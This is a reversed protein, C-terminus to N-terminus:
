PGVRALLARPGVRYVHGIAVGSDAITSAKGLQLIWEAKSPADVATRPLLSTFAWFRFKGSGTVFFTDGPPVIKAVRDFTQPNVHVQLGGARDAQARSYHHYLRIRQVADHAEFPLLALAAFVMLAPLLAVGRSHLERSAVRWVAVGAAAAVPQWAVEIVTQV